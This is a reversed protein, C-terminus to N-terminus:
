FQCRGIGFKKMDVIRALADMRGGDEYSIRGSSALRPLAEEVVGKVAFPRDWDGLEYEISVKELLPFRSSPIADDLVHLDWTSGGEGGFYTNWRATFHVIFDECSPPLVRLVTGFPTYRSPDLEKKASILDTKCPFVRLRLQKLLPCAAVCDALLDWPPIPSSQETM